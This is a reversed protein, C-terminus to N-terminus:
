GPRPALAVPRSVKATPRDADWFLTVELRRERELIRATARTLRFIVTTAKGPAPDVAKSVVPFARESTGLNLTGGCGDPCAITVSARRGSLTVRPGIEIACIM